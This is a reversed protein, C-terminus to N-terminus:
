PRTRGFPRGAAGPPLGAGDSGPPAPLRGLVRRRLRRYSSFLGGLVLLGAAIGTLSGLAIGFGLVAFGAFSVIGGSLPGGSASPTLSTRGISQLGGNVQILILAASEVATLLLGEVSLTAGGLYAAVAGLILIGGIAARFGLIYFPTAEVRGFYHSRGFLWQAVETAVVLMGLDIIAAITAFNGLANSFLLFLFTLPIGVFLGATYAFLEKREDFLSVPVQPAAYRGVEVYLFAASLLVGAFGGISLAGNVM